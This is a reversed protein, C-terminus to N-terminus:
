AHDVGLCSYGLSELMEGAVSNFTDIQSPELDRQYRGVASTDIRQMVRKRSPHAVSSDFFDHDVSEHQLLRDSWPVSLFEVVTELVSRPELVLDEYRIELVSAGCRIANVRSKEILKVWKTAAEEIENYGWSGHETIQSSAVDRGDRIIHIFSAHPWARQYPSVNRIERMIKCGWRRKSSAPNDIAARRGQLVGRLTLLSRKAWGARQDEGLLRQGLLEILHCKREFNNLDAGLEDMAQEVCERITSLSHGAREARRVFQVPPRLTASEALQPSKISPDGAEILDIANLVASGINPPGAFHYEPAVALMPHSDLVVNLLTTGSRGDGGIFVPRAARRLAEPSHQPRERQPTRKNFISPSRLTVTDWVAEASGEESAAVVDEYWKAGTLRKSREWEESYYQPHLLVRYRKGPQWTRVFDRLDRKEPDRAGNLGGDSFSGDLRITHGNLTWHLSDQLAPPIPLLANSAGDADRVGGHPCFFRIDYKERLLAVDNEFIECAREVDFMGWEYANSHYGIVWGGGELRSLLEHDVAYDREVLRGENRLIRRRLLRNFIMVNSHIGLQLQHRLVDHTLEPCDDVDHHIILHIKSRDADGSALQQQWAKWEELYNAKYDYDSGFPLDAYTLIEIEDSHRHLFDFFGFLFGQPVCPTFSGHAEEAAPGVEPNDSTPGM